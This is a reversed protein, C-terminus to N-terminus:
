SFTSFSFLQQVQLLILCKLYNKYFNGTNHSSAFSNSLLNIWVLSVIWNLEAWLGIPRPASNFQITDSTHILKSELRTQKRPCCLCNIKFMMFLICFIKDCLLKFDTVPCNLSDCPLKSWWLAIQVTVPCNLILQGTVTQILKFKLIKRHLPM